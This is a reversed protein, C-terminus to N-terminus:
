FNPRYNKMIKNSM